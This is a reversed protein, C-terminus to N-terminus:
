PQGAKFERRVFSFVVADHAKGHLLLRCRLLGERVAGAKEAVRQSAPNETSAIIELRNLNTNQFAWRVLLHISATAMGNGTVSSRIWYGINARRNEQDIDNLGCGGLFRGEHSLVVFEFAKGSQFNTVQRAIWTRADELSLDPRCWPMFPAVEMVSEKAAEYLAVADEIAYPRIFIGTQYQM